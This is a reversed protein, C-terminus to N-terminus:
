RWLRPSQRDQAELLPRAGQGPAPHNAPEAQSTRLVVKGSGQSTLYIRLTLPITSNRFFKDWSSNLSWVKNHAIGASCRFGTKDYVAKRMDEMISAGVALRTNDSLGEKENSELWTEVGERRMEESTDHGVVFTNPLLAEGVGTVLDRRREEVLTTIDIYAEDISAREVVAGFGVLVEIVEKGADRYKTLDAKGRQEPVKVLVIEPCQLSFRM